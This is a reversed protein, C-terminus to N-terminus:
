AKRWKTELSYHDPKWKAVVGLRSRWLKFPVGALRTLLRQKDIGRELCRNLAHQSFTVVVGKEEAFRLPNKKTQKMEHSM